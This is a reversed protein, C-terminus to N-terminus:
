IGDYNGIQNLESLLDLKFIDVLMDNAAKILESDASSYVIVQQGLFAIVNKENDVWLIISDDRNENKTMYPEGYVDIYKDVLRAYTDNDLSQLYYAAATLKDEYFICECSELPLGALQEVDLMIELYFQELFQQIVTRSIYDEEDVPAIIEYVLDNLELDKIFDDYDMGWEYGRFGSILVEEGEQVEAGNVVIELPLFMMVCVFGILVPMVMKLMKNYIEKIM